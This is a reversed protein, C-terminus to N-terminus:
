GEVWDPDDALIFLQVKPIAGAAITPTGRTVAQIYFLGSPCVYPKGFNVIQSTQCSGHDDWEFFRMECIHSLIETDTPAFASDSAVQTIPANFIELDTQIAEDDLDYYNAGYIIGSKPVKVTFATGFCDNADFADGTVIGPIEIPMSPCAVTKTAVRVSNSIKIGSLLTEVLPVISGDPNALIIKGVIDEEQKQLTAKLSNNVEETIDVGRKTVLRVKNKGQVIWVETAM